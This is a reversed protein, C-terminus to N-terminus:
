INEKENLIKFRANLIREEGDDIMDIIVEKEYLYNYHKLALEIFYIFIGIDIRNYYTVLLGPLLGRLGKGKKRYVLIEGKNTIAIWNQINNISPALRASQGIEKYYDNKWIASLDKRKVKSKETRFLKENSKKILMMAVFFLDDKKIDLLSDCRFWTSSINEKALYLEVQEGIYGINQLYNDKKESYFIIQYEENRKSSTRDVKLLEMSVKINKLLPTTNHFFNYLNDIDEESLSVHSNSRFLTLSKRKHIMDYLDEM